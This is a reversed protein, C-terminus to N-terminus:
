RFLDQDLISGREAVKGFALWVAWSHTTGGAGGAGLTINGLPSRGGVYVSIGYVHGNPVPDVREYVDGAELGVGGYLRQDKLVVLNALQYLFDGGVVWYKRARLQDEAYGAFSQPGGLAFARDAPLTDGLETGGAATFTVRLKGLLMSKRLAAEIRQWDRTAGLSGDAGLYELAAAIGANAFTSADRSDYSLTAAPGADTASVTPFLKLGTDVETNRKDIWYGLRLQTNLSLNAGADLRMGRDIFFYRAIRQSDNYLDEISRSAFFDPQVFVSQRVNLPQYLSSDFLALTGIQLTNRWAGGLRNLWYRIHQLGLLFEIDGRGGMYMGLGLRVYDPGYPNEKPRWVLVPSEPEGLLDYDVSIIDNLVSLRRADQSISEGDVKDGARIQTVTRLYDPNVRELGAFRVESVTAQIGQRREVRQRWEAYEREPLALGALQAAMKRAAAEGLPITEATRQFDASGITGLEVDIRVDRDTLSQLQLAENAEMMVDMSRSALQVAGRVQDPTVAPKVLNVAIVVDACLHRAVDVPLNRVVFGDSLVYRDTIVPSFAGPIAMSARMATAIDGHDLVVMSGSLMDTAVARFPIPLNDFNEVTRARAVYTRLVTEISSTPIFGAPGVLHGNKVAFQINVAAAGAARKQEAPELQRDGVGGIVSKWDIGTVFQEIESAPLGAAYGGGVLAGMSTGAICDVPVHMQELVKLVGIHAGGKAGGGALALGIRPRQVPPPSSSQQAPADRPALVAMALLMGLSGVVTPRRVYSRSM